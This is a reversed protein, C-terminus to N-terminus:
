LYEDELCIEIVSAAGDLTQKLQRKCVIIGNGFPNAVLLWDQRSFFLLVSM